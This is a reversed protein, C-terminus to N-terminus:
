RYQMLEKSEQLIKKKPIVKTPIEHHHELLSCDCSTIRKSKLNGSTRIWELLQLVHDAKIQYLPMKVIQECRSIKNLLSKEKEWGKKKESKETRYKEIADALTFTKSEAKKARATFIREENVDLAANAKVLDRYVQAESLTDFTKNITRGASMMKVRFSMEGRQFINKDVSCPFKAM